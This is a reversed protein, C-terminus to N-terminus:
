ASQKKTDIAWLIFFTSFPVFTSIEIYMFHTLSVIIFDVM